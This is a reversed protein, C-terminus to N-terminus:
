QRITIPMLTLFFHQYNFKLSTVDLYSDYETYAIGVMNQSNIVLSTFDTENTYQGGNDLTSCFWYAFLYGPPNDGCNGYPQDSYELYPRVINLTPPSFESNIKQYAIVPNGDKDIKMSIGMPSISTGMYDVVVPGWSPDYYKLHGNTKDYYAIRYVDGSYHPAILSAFLGVDTGDWGDLDYCYWGFDPGCMGNPTIIILGLDGDHAAYYAIYPVDDYSFDLSAYRGEGAGFSFERCDWLGAAGGEGCNGAGPVQHTYILISSLSLSNYSFSAIAANGTSDFKFSSYLGTSIEPAGPSKVTVTNWACSGVYCTYIAAKLARNTMDYYSVGM